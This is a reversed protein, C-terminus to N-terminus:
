KFVGVLTCSPALKLKEKLGFEVEPKQTQKRMQNTFDSTSCDM